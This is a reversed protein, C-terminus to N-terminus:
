HTWCTTSLRGHGGEDMVEIVGIRSGNRNCSMIKTFHFLSRQSFLDGHDKLFRIKKGLGDEGVDEIAVGLGGEFLDIVSGFGDSGM